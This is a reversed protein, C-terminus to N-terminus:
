KIESLQLLQKTEVLLQAMTQLEDDSIEMLEEFMEDSEQSIFAIEQMTALLQQASAALEEANASSNANNHAITKTTEVIREFMEGIQLIVENTQAFEKTGQDMSTVVTTTETQINRVISSVESASQRSQEALKRVEDAVVAFGKGHEGARAAEIAANLALLNIQESIDTIVKVINGIENSKDGLNSIAEFTTNITGNFQEMQQMSQRIMDNGSQTLALTTSSQESIENAQISLTEIAATMQEVSETSEITMTLQKKLGKGVEDIAARGIDAKEAAYEGDKVLQQGKEAIANTLVDVKQKQQQQKKVFANFAIVEEGNGTLTEVTDNTLAANMTELMRTIQAQKRKSEVYKFAFFVTTCLLIIAVILM